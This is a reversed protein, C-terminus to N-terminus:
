GFGPFPVSGIFKLLPDATESSGDYKFNYIVFMCAAEKIGRSQAAEIVASEFTKWRSFGQVISAIEMPQPRVGIECVVQPPVQFGFEKPFIDDIYDDLDDESRFDGIWVSVFGSSVFDYFNKTTPM